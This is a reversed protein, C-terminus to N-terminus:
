QPTHCQEGEALFDAAWGIGSASDGLSFEGTGVAQECIHQFTNPYRVGLLSLQTAIAELERLVAGGDASDAELADNIDM